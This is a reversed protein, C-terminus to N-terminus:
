SAPEGRITVTDNGQEIWFKSDPVGRVKLVAVPGNLSREHDLRMESHPIGQMILDTIRDEIATNFAFVVQDQKERMVGAM